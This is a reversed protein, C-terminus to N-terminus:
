LDVYRLKSYDDYFEVIYKEKNEFIKSYRNKDEKTEFSDFMLMLFEAAFETMFRKYPDDNKLDRKNKIQEKMSIWRCNEPSYGKYNNIRDLTCQGKPANEDYGNELAWNIFKKPDLWENCVKIGRGGYNKYAANNKSYCRSKMNQWLRYLRKHEVSLGIGKKM